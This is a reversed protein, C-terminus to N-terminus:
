GEEWTKAKWDEKRTKNRRKKNLVGKRKEATDRKEEGGMNGKTYNKKKNKREEATKGDNRGVKRRKKRGEKNRDEKKM